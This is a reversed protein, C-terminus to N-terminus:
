EILLKKIVITENTNVEFFYTGKTLLSLDLTFNSEPNRSTVLERGMVDFVKITTKLPSSLSVQFIGSSSPNPFVSILNDETASENVGVNTEPTCVRGGYIDGAENSWFAITCGGTEQQLEFDAYFPTNVSTSISDGNVSYMITSDPRFKQALLGASVEYVAVVSGSDSMILKPNPLYSNLNCAQVGGPTWEITGSTDLKQVYIYANSANPRGDNWTVFLKDNSLISYSNAQPSSFDSVDRYYPSWPFNGNSNLKATVIGNAGYSDWTVYLSGSADSNMTILGNFAGASTTIDVPTPWLANGDPNYRQIVIGSGIGNGKMLVYVGNQHDDCSRYDYYLGYTIAFNNNPFALNGSFDVRNFCFFTSGGSYTFYYGITAGLQNPFINFAASSGIGIVGSTATAVTVPQSWVPDGDTDFYQCRLSDAGGNPGQIWALLIGSQWAVMKFDNINKSVTQFVNKGNAPWLLNGDEDLHQGYIATGVTGGRADIWFIFYGGSNDSISHVISQGNIDNCIVLPNNPDDTWQALVCHHFTVILVFLLAAIKKM